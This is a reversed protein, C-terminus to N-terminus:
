SPNHRSFDRFMWLIRNTRSAILSSSGADRDNRNFDSALWRPAEQAFGGGGFREGAQVILRGSSRKWFGCPSEALLRLWGRSRRSRTRFREWFLPQDVLNRGAEALIPAVIMEALPKARPRRRGSDFLRRSLEEVEITRRPVGRAEVGSSQRSLGFPHNWYRSAM